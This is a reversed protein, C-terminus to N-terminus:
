HGVGSITKMVSVCGMEEDGRWAAMNLLSTVGRHIITSSSQLLWHDAKSGWESSNSSRSPQSSDPLQDKCPRIMESSSASTARRYNSSWRRISPSTLNYHILNTLKRPDRELDFEDWCIWQNQGFQSAGLHQLSLSCLNCFQRCMLVFGPDISRSKTSFSSLSSSLPATLPPMLGRIERSVVGALERDPRDSGRGLEGPGLRM